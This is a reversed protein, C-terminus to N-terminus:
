FRDGLERRLTAFREPPVAIDGTFRMGLVCTGDAARAKIAALDDPSVHLDAKAKKTFGIPLSPQSLVPALLREDAMMGLAFNGTFCMGIVGIGPGGSTEHAHRGLAKLWATVPATRGAAFAAFEKSVCAPVISRIANVPTAPEGPVGFLHPLWASCGAEVVRDAFEVVKPTIGPIEAIVIVAPGEGKRYVARASGDHTFPEQAYGPLDPLTMTPWGLPSTRFRLRLLRAM